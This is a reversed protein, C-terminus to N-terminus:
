GVARRHVEELLGLHPPARLVTRAAAPDARWARGERLRRVRELASAAREPPVEGEAVARQIGALLGPLDRQALLMRSAILADCGARLAALAGALLPAKLAIGAMELDDSIVVGDFGLEGRLLGGLIAPSLTAPAAPDLAPFTIHTTMVSSVGAAIASRFPLLDCRELEARSREVTPMTFHSDRGTAGHGPFHKASTRVGARAAGRVYAAVMAAVAAPDRGFSRDGVPCDPASLVDAVPALNWNVGLALLERGVAEAVRGVLAPDGARAIAGMAPYVTVGELIRVVRGQEQDIAILLPREHGAARAAEQLRNTLALVQAAGVCNKRFLIVGGLGARILELIEASPETGDFGCILLEGAAEALERPTGM